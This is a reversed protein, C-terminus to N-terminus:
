LVKIREDASVNVGTPELQPVGRKPETRHGRRLIPREIVVWMVISYALTMGLALAWGHPPALQLATMHILYFSYSIRGLGTLGKSSLGRVGVGMLSLLLLGVSIMLTAELLATNALQSGMTPKLGKANLAIALTAGAVLLLLAHVRYPRLNVQVVSAQMPVGSMYLAVLAGAALTDMRFPLLMYTAFGSSFYPTCVWRLVPALILLAWALIILRRKDLFFVALPWLLYFQEEVALSWLPQTSLHPLNLPILFNMGGLYLYWYSLWGTGFLLVSVALFVSYAPLIRRSRQIYFGGLYNLFRKRKQRLLIGTILFGSLVFFIDVGMWLLNANFAHFVFVFLIAIGRLGDLAVVHGGTAAREEKEM